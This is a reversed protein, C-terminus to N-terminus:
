AAYATGAESFGGAGRHKLWLEPPPPLPPETVCESSPQQIESYERLRLKLNSSANQRAALFYARSPTDFYVSTVTSRAGSRYDQAGLKLALSGSNV